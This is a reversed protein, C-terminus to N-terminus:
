ECLCSPTSVSWTANSSCVCVAEGQLLFGDACSFIAVGRYENSLVTVNGNEPPEPPYECSVVTVALLLCDNICVVQKSVYSHM